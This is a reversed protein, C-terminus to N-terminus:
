VRYAWPALDLATQHALEVSERSFHEVYSGPYLGDHLTVTQPEASFNIVAFVKSRSDERVFSLVKSNASNPVHVMRAGWKGNWL